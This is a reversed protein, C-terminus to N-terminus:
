EGADSPPLRLGVLTIGRADVAQVVLEVPGLRVADGPVPPRHLRGELYRALSLGADASELPLGYTRAVDAMPARPDLAFAGFFRDPQLLPVPGSPEVRQVLAAVAPRWALAFVRDGAALPVNEEMVLPLGRRFVAVVRADVGAFVRDPDAGIAPSGAYVDLQVLDYPREGEIPLEIRLPPEPTAPVAVRLRRALPGVTAGQVVLSILVVVFAVEYLLRAQPLGALVPFLALVIPVAGRLGVWAIFAVERAPYRLPALCLTVALPRAVLVLVVGLLTAVGLDGLIATPTVLLGLVLFMGAQALWALSDTTRLLHESYPLRRNGVVLGVLYVGLFGSGGAANIAAFALVGGSAVLLTHLGPSLRVRPLLWALGLGLLVGGALGVGFQRVLVGAVELDLATRGGQILELLAVTLFVAMPDNIGSEIELTAGVRENLAVGGHRLISFVAAADTSGVISGLLLGYRWDVALAWSAALGMFAATLLVGLSALTLAPALAVRFTALRTHLGGDLLIVALALNGVTFATEFDSFAIGGPGDEGALMGVVLFVLLVPLGLRASALTSLVSVFLLGAGVLILQNIADM